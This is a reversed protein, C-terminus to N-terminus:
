RKSFGKGAHYRLPNGEQKERGARWKDEACCRGGSIFTENIQKTKKKKEQDSGEWLAPGANAKNGAVAEAGVCHKTFLLRKISISNM